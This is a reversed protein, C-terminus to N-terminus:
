FDLYCKGGVVELNGKSGGYDRLYMALWGVVGLLIRFVFEVVYFSFSVGFM